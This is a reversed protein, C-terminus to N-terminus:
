LWGEQEAKVQEATALSKTRGTPGQGRHAAEAAEARSLHHGARGRRWGDASM